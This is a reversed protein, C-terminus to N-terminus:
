IRFTCMCMPPVLCARSSCKLRIVERRPCCCLVFYWGLCVVWMSCRRGPWGVDHYTFVACAHTTQQNTANRNTAHKHSHCFSKICYLWMSHRIPNLEQGAIRRWPILMTIWCGLLCLYIVCQSCASARATTFTHCYSAHYALYINTACSKLWSSPISM